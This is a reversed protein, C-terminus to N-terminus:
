TCSGSARRAQDTFGLNGRGCVVHAWYCLGNITDRKGATGKVAGALGLDGTWGALLHRGAVAVVAVRAGLGRVVPARDLFVVGVLVARHVPARERPHEGGHRAERWDGAFDAVVTGARALPDVGHEQHTQLDLLPKLTTKDGASIITPPKECM